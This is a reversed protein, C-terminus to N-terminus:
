DTGVALDYLRACFAAPLRTAAYGAQGPLPGGAAAVRLIMTALEAAGDQPRLVTAFQAYEGFAGDPSTIVPVDLGALRAMVGSSEGLNQRRLQIAVHVSALLRSFEHDSPSDHIEYGRDPTLNNHRAFLGAQYGAIVLRADPRERRVAQFAEIVVETRKSGGPVGFCGIRLGPPRAPRAEAPPAFVPHFLVEVRRDGVERRVVAEAAPSNVIIAHVDLGDLLPRIGFVGAEVMQQDSPADGLDVGYHGGIVQRLPRQEEHMIRRFVNVLCPDHLHVVLRCRPPFHMNRRLARLVPLNHDSNGVAYVQARYGIAQQGLALAALHFVRLRSQALRHDTIAGLYDEPSSYHAFVDVPYAAERFTLLTATAIGSAAPPMCSIVAIKPPPGSSEALRRSTHELAFAIDERPQAVKRDLADHLERFGHGNILRRV